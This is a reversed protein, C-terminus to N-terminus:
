TKQDETGEGKAAKSPPGQRRQRFNLFPESKPAMDVGRLHAVDIDKDERAEGDKKKSRRDM